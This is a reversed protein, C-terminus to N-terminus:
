ESKKLRERKTIKTIPSRKFYPSCTVKTVFLYEKHNSFDTSGTNFYRYHKEFMKTKGKKDLIGKIEELTIKNKSSNSKSHYTNNYSVVIYKARIDKILESFRDKAGERCYDSMNECKPKLAVGYLTPSDWKVLTELVHYFRSYQRSNYPPDVYMIDAKIKKVLSNADERFILLSKILDPYIVRMCFNDRLLKNKFYADYHGVTNAIKDASYLLSALLIYYEKETLCSKNEEINQRIFGIMKASDNSFYKGGFHKSFYSERLSNAKIHNYDNVLSLIKKKSWVGKAFFAKYIVYNSYLFDNLIIKNFHRSAVSGIVGTGAFIDAFCTGHCEKKLISFIWDTLKYKNGIYRRNHLEFGNDWLYSSFQSKFLEPERDFLSRQIDRM